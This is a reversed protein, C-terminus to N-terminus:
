IGELEKDDNKDSEPLKAESSVMDRFKKGFGAVVELTAKREAWSTGSLAKVTAFKIGKLADASVDAELMEKINVAPKFNIIGFEEEADVLKLLAEDAALLWREHTRNEPKSRSVYVFLMRWGGKSLVGRYVKPSDDM